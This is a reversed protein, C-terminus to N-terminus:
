PSGEQRLYPANVASLRMRLDRSSAAMRANASTSGFAAASDSRSVCLERVINPSRARMSCGAIVSM